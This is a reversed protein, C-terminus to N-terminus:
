DDPGVGAKVLCKAVHDIHRLFDRYKVMDNMFDIAIKDPYKQATKRVMGYMTEEPYDIWQPVKGYRALWPTYKPDLRQQAM